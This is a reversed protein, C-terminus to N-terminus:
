GPRKRNGRPWLCQRGATEQRHCVHRAPNPEPTGNVSVRGALILEDAKRRSCLGSAAIAKNLRSGEPAINEGDPKGANATAKKGGDKAFRAAPGHAHAPRPAATKRAPQPRQGHAKGFAGDANDDANRAAAHGSNNTSTKAPAGSTDRGHAARKQKDASCANGSYKSPM